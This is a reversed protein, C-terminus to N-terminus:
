TATRASSAPRPTSRARGSATPTRSRSTTRPTSSTTATAASSAKRTCSPTSPTTTPPTRTRTRGASSAARTSSSRPTGRSARRRRTGARQRQDHPLPRVARGKERDREGPLRRRPRAQGRRRGDRHRHSVGRLAERGRRQDGQRRDAVAGPLGPRRLRQLADVREVAQLDGPPLGPLHQPGRVGLLDGHSRGRDRAALPLLPLDRCVEGARATREGRGERRCSRVHFLAARCPCPEPGSEHPRRPRTTNECPAPDRRGGPTLLGWKGRSTLCSGPRPRRM